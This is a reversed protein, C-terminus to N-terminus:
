IPRARHQAADTGIRSNIITRILRAVPEPINDGAQYRQGNRWSVGIFRAFDVGNLKLQGRARNYEDASMPPYDSASRARYGRAPM